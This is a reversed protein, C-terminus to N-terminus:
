FVLLLNMATEAVSLVDVANAAPPTSTEGPASPDDSMQVAACPPTQTEGPEPPACPPTQTEGAFASLSLACTLVIAAVLRKLSKM